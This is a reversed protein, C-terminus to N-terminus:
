RTRRRLRTLLDPDLAGFGSSAWPERDTEFYHAPAGRHVVDLIDPRRGAELDHRCRRCVPADVGTGAVELPRPDTATGHVPNLFCPRPPAFASGRRAAQLAVEGREALVLAGVADLVDVEAGAEADGAADSTAPLLRGAADYHDLAARWSDLAAPGAGPDLDTADIREGLALVATRARRVADADGAERVRELVSAPLAFPQDAGRGPRARARRRLLLGAAAAAVVVAAVLAVPLWDGATGDADDYAQARAASAQEAVETFTGDALAGTVELLGAGLEQAQGEDGHSLIGDVDFSVDTSGAVEGWQQVSVRVGDDGVFPQVVLGDTTTSFFGDSVRDVSLYLGDRGTADHLRFALDSGWSGDAGQPPAALVVFVPEDAAAVNAELERVEAPDLWDEASRGVYVGDRALEAAVDNVLADNM